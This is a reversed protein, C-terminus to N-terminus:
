RDVSCDPGILQATVGPYDVFQTSPPYLLHLYLAVPRTFQLTFAHASPLPPLPFSPRPRPVARQTRFTRRFASPLDFSPLTHAHAYSRPCRALYTRTRARPAYPSPRPVARSSPLVPDLQAPVASDSSPFTPPVIWFQPHQPPYRAPLRPTILQSSPILEAVFSSSPLAAFSSRVRVRIQSDPCDPFETFRPFQQPVPGPVQTRCRPPRVFTSRVIVM